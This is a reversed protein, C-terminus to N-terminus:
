RDNVDWVTRVQAFYKTLCPQLHGMLRLKSSLLEEPLEQGAGM